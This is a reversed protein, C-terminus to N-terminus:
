QPVTDTVAEVVRVRNRVVERDQLAPDGAREVVDGLRVQRAVHALEIEPIGVPSVEAHGVGHPGVLVGHRHLRHLLM